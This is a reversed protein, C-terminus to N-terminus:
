RGGFSLTVEMILPVLRPMNTAIVNRHIQLLLVVIIPCETLVKFSTM